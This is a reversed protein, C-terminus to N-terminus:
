DEPSPFSHLFSPVLEPFECNSHQPPLKSLLTKTEGAMPAQKLMYMFIQLSPALLPSGSDKWYHGIVPSSAIPVLLAPLERQVCPFVKESYPHALVTVLLWSLRQLRWGQLNELTLKM